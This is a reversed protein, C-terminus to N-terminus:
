GEVLYKPDREEILITASYEGNTNQSHSVSLVRKGATAASIARELEEASSAKVVKTSQPM